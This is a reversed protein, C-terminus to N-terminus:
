DLREDEDTLLALVEEATLFLWGMVRMDNSQLLPVSPMTLHSLHENTRDHVEMLLHLARITQYRCERAQDWRQIRLLEEARDTPQESTTMLVPTQPMAVGLQPSEVSYINMAVGSERLESTAQTLLFIAQYRGILICSFSSAVFPMSGM